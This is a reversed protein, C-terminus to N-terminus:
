SLTGFRRRGLQVYAGRPDGMLLSWLKARRFFLQIDSELMFGYGGHFHLSDGTVRNAVEGAWLYAMTALEPATAPDDDFAWAAKRYLLESGQVATADDALRHAISQFAGIPKGFQNRQKAYSVGIDLAAAAIGHLLAAGLTRWEDLAREYRVVADAGTALVTRGGAHLDRNALSAGATNDAQPESPAEVAVLEDGDLAVVMTAVAGAPVLRAVGDIAPRVALTPLGEDHGILRGAVVAEVLPIPALHRGAQEAVLALDLVTAGAQSLGMTTMGIDVAKHWLELDFGFPEAARVVTLPSEKAFFRRFADVLAEQDGTLTLEV